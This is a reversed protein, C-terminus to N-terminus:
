NKNALAFNGIADVCVWVRKWRAQSRSKQPASQVILSHFTIHIRITRMQRYTFFFCLNEIVKFKRFFLKHMSCACGCLTSNQQNLVFQDSEIQLSLQNTQEHTQTHAWHTQIGWNGNKSTWRRNRGCWIGILFETLDTWSRTKPFCNDNKQTSTQDSKVIM